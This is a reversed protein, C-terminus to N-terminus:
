AGKIYCNIFEGTKQAYLSLHKRCDDLSMNCTYMTVITSWSKLIEEVIADIDEQKDVRMMLAKQLIKHVLNGVAMVTEDSTYPPLTDVGRFLQSLM